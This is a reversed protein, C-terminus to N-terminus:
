FKRMKINIKVRLRKKSVKRMRPQKLDEENRTSIGRKKYLEEM